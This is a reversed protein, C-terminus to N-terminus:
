AKMQMPHDYLQSLKNNVSSLRETIDDHDFDTELFQKVPVSLPKIPDEICKTEPLKAPKIPDEICKTEPLQAREIVEDDNTSSQSSRTVIEKRAMDTLSPVLDSAIQEYDMGSFKGLRYMYNTILEALGGWIVALILTIIIQNCYAASAWFGVFLASYIQWAEMTFKTEEKGSM